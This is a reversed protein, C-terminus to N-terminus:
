GVGPLRPPHLEPGRSRSLLDDPPAARGQAQGLHALLGRVGHPGPGPLGPALVAM